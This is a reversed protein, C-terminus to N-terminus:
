RVVKRAPDTIKHSSTRQGGGSLQGDIATLIFQLWKRRKSTGAGQVAGGQSRWRKCTSKTSTGVLQAGTRSKRRYGLLWVAGHQDRVIRLSRVPPPCSGAAALLSRVTRALIISTCYHHGLGISDTATLKVTCVGAAAYTRTGTVLVFDNEQTMVGPSTTGDGLGRLRTCGNCRCRHLLALDSRRAEGSRPTCSRASSLRTANPRRDRRRSMTTRGSITEGNGPPDRRQLLSDPQLEWLCVRREWTAVGYIDAIVAKSFTLADGTLV